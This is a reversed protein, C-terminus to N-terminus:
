TNKNSNKLKNKTGFLRAEYDISEELPIGQEKLVEQHLNALESESVSIGDEYLQDIQEKTLYANLNTQNKYDSATAFTRSNRMEQKILDNLIEHKNETVQNQNSTNNNQLNINQNLNLLGGLKEIVKIAILDVDSAANNSNNSIKQQQIEPQAQNSYKSFIQQQKVLNQHSIEINQNMNENMYNLNEMMMTQLNVM